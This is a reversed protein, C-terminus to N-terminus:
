APRGGNGSPAEIPDLWFGAIARREVKRRLDRMAELHAFRTAGGGIALKTLFIVEGALLLSAPQATLWTGIQEVEKVEVATLSADSPIRM